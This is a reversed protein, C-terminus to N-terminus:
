RRPYLHAYMETTKYDAYSACKQPRRLPAGAM